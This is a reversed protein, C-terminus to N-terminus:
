IMILTQEKIADEKSIEKRKSKQKKLEGEDVMVDGNCNAKMWKGTSDELFWWHERGEKLLCEGKEFGVKETCKCTYYKTKM